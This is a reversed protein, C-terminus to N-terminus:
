GSHIVPCHVVAHSEYVKSSVIIEFNHIGTKFFLVNLESSNVFFVSEPKTLGCAPNLTSPTVFESLTKTISLVCAAPAEYPRLM